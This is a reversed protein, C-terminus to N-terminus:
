VLDTKLERLSKNMKQITTECQCIAWCLQEDEVGDLSKYMMNFVNQNAPPMSHYLESLVSRLEATHKDHLRKITPSHKDLTPHMSRYIM